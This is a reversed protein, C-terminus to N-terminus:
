AGVLRMESPQVQPLVWWRAGVLQLVVGLLQQPASLLMFTSTGAQRRRQLVKATPCSTRAEWQLNGVPVAGAQLHVVLAHREQRLAKCAHNLMLLRFMQTDAPKQLAGILLFTWGWALCPYIM